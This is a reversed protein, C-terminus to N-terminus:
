YHQRCECLWLPRILLGGFEIFNHKLDRDNHQERLDDAHLCSLFGIIIIFCVSLSRRPKSYKIPTYM